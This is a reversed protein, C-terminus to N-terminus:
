PAPAGEIAEEEVVEEQAAPAVTVVTEAVEAASPDTHFSMSFDAAAFDRNQAIALALQEATV